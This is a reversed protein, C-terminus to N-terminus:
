VKRKGENKVREKPTVLIGRIPIIVKKKGKTGLISLTAM